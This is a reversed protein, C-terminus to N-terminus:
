QQEKKNLIKRLNAEQYRIWWVYEEVYEMTRFLRPPQEYIRENKVWKEFQPNYKSYVAFYNGQKEVRADSVGTEALQRREPHFKEWWERFKPCKKNKYHCDDRLYKSDIWNKEYFNARIWENSLEWYDRGELEKESFVPFYDSIGICGAVGDGLGTNMLRGYEEDQKQHFYWGGMNSVDKRYIGAM